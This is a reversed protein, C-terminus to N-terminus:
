LPIRLYASLIDASDREDFGFDHQYNFQLSAAGFDVSIGGNVSAKNEDRNKKEVQTSIPFFPQFAGVPDISEVNRDQSAFDHTFSSGINVRADIDEGGLPLPVTANFGITGPFSLITEDTFDRNQAPDDVFFTGTIEGTVPDFIDTRVYDESYDDIREAQFRMRAYPQIAIGSIGAVEPLEIRYGATVDGAITDSDFDAKMRDVLITGVFIESRRTDYNTHKYQTTGLITLPGEIFGVAMTFGISTAERDDPIGGAGALGFGFPDNVIINALADALNVDDYDYDAESVDITLGVLAGNEFLYDAGISGGITHIDVAPVFDPAVFAFAPTDFFVTMDNNYSDYREISYYPAAIINLGATPPSVLIDQLGRSQEGGTATGGAGQALAHNGFATAVLLGTAIITVLRPAAFAADSRFDAMITDVGIKELKCVKPM